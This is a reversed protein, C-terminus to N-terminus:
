GILCTPAACGPHARCAWYHRMRGLVATAALWNFGREGLYARLQRLVRAIVQQEPGVNGTWQHGNDRLLKPFPGLQPLQEEGFARLLNIATEDSTNYGPAIAGQFIQALVHLGSGTLSHVTFGAASLMKERRSWNKPLVPTILARETWAAFVKVWAAVQRTVPDILGTGDSIIILRHDMYRMALENLELSEVPRGRESERVVRRPDGIFTFAEVDVAADRMTRILAHGLDASLDRPGREELLALYSPLLPRRRYIPTVICRRRFTAAITAQPDLRMSHGERHRGLGVMAVRFPASSFLLSLEPAIEKDLTVSETAFDVPVLKRELGRLQRSRRITWFAYVLFPSAILAFWALNVGALRPVENPVPKVM